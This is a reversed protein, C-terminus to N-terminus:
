RRNRTVENAGIVVQQLYLYVLFCVSVCQKIDLGKKQKAFIVPCM